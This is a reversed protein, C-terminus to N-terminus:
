RLDSVMARSEIWLTHTVARFAWSEFCCMLSEVSLASAAAAAFFGPGASLVSLGPISGMSDCCGSRRALGCGGRDCWCGCWSYGGGGICFEEGFGWGIEGERIQQGVANVIGDELPGIGDDAAGLDGEVLGGDEIAVLRVTDALLFGGPM